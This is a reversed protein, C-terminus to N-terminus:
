YPPPALRYAAFCPTRCESALHVAEYAFHIRGQALTVGGSRVRVIVSDPTGAVEVRQVRACLPVALADEHQTAHRRGGEFACTESHRESTVTVEFPGPPWHEPDFDVHVDDATFTLVCRGNKPKGARAIAQADACTRPDGVAAPLAAVVPPGAGDGDDYPISSVWRDISEPSEPSEPAESEEVYGACACAQLLVGLSVSRPRPM